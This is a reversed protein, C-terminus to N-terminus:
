SKDFVGAAILKNATEESPYNIMKPKLVKGNALEDLDDSSIKLDIFLSETAEKLIDYDSKPKKEQDESTVSNVPAWRLRKLTKGENNMIYITTNNKDLELVYETVEHGEIVTEMHFFIKNPYKKNQTPYYRTCGYSIPSESGDKKQTIVDILFVIM